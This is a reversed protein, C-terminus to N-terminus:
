PKIRVMMPTLSPWPMEVPLAVSATKRGKIRTMMKPMTAAIEKGKNRLLKVDM